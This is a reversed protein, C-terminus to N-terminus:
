YGKSIYAAGDFLRRKLVSFSLYPESVANTAPFVLILKMLKFVYVEKEILM